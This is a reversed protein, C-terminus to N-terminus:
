RPEERARLVARLECLGRYYRTKATNAPIGLASGIEEFTREEFHKLRIVNAEERGIRLLGDHLEEFAWPDPDAVRGADVGLRAVGRAEHRQRQVRRIANWYERVCFGHVWGELSSLGEFDGLKGWVRVAVDQALDALADRGLLGGNKQEFYLLMRPICRLHDAFRGLEERRGHLITRVLALDEAASSERGERAQSM